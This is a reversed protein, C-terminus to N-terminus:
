ASVKRIVRAVIWMRGRLCRDTNGIGDAGQMRAKVAAVNAVSCPRIWLEVALLLPLM